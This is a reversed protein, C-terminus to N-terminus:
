PNRNVSDQPFQLIAPGRGAKHPRGRVVTLPGTWTWVVQLSLFGVRQGWSRSPEASGLETTGLDLDWDSCALRENRSCVLPFIDFLLMIPLSLPFCLYKRCSLLLASPNLKQTGSTKICCQWGPGILFWLFHFVSIVMCLSLLTHEAVQM